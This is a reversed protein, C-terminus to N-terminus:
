LSWILDSLASLIASGFFLFIGVFILIIVIQARFFNARNKNSNEIAFVIVLIWGIIPINGIILWGIYQGITTTPSMDTQNYGPNVNQYAYPPTQYIPPAQQYVPQQPTPPVPNVPAQPESSVTAKVSTGCKDCFAYNDEVENGCNKCIM